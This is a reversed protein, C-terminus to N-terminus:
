KQAKKGYHILLDRIQEKEVPKSLYDDMGASICKERDGKLANATMAVIVPQAIGSLQRIKQTAELGDMEPMMVDMFILDFHNEQAMQLAEKGNNALSTSYGYLALVQEALKQNILNDEALLISMPYKDAIKQNQNEFINKESQSPNKDSIIDAMKKLLFDHRIPKSVHAKFYKGIDTRSLMHGISSYLILPLEANISSKKLERAFEIGDMEPMKMDILGLDFLKGQALINLAVSPSDYAEVKMGNTLFLQELILRNTRNDDVIIVNKNRLIELSQNKSEEMKEEDMELTFHFCTGEGPTSDVLLNGGMLEILRQSIVLGLGTGGYKRTTSNDVQSFPKFLRDLKEEPIGIGTDIVSLKIKIRGETRELINVDIVVEGHETFKIANGILNVIVQRLRTVDGRLQLVESNTVRYFLEINKEHARGSFLNMVEEICTNLDFASEELELHGAEIKSFDLIDNIINLLHEGSVKITDVFERQQATLETDALLGTMGIVGNMPTRIEHSMTALFDSKARTANEAIEKSRIM